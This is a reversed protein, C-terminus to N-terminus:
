EGLLHIPRYVGAFDFSKFVRFAIVNEQGPKLYKTVDTTWAHDYDYWFYDPGRYITDQYGNQEFVVPEGNIWIQMAKFIVSGFQLKVRECQAFAAPVNVSTRYFFAAVERQTQYKVDPCVSTDLDDLQAVSTAPLHYGLAVAHNRTDLCGKMMRPLRLSVKAAKVKADLDKYQNYIGGTMFQAKGKDDLRTPHMYNPYLQNLKDRIVFVDALRAVAQGYDGTERLIEEADCAADTSAQLDVMTQMHAKARATDAAAVARSLLERARARVAPTLILHNAWVENSYLDPIEAMRDELAQYYDMMAVAAAGFRAQAYDRMIDHYPQKVNWYLRQMLYNNLGCSGWDDYGQTTHGDLGLEHFWPYNKGIIAWRPCIMAMNWCYGMPEYDYLLTEAGAANALVMWDELWQKWARMTKSRPDRVHHLPSVGLPAFVLSMAPHVQELRPPTLNNAYVLVGFKRDPYKQRVREIVQRHFFWLQDTASFAGMAWDFDNSRLARSEPREDLVLGDEASLSAYQELPNRNFYDTFFDGYLQWAKPNAFNPTHFNLKGNALAYYDDPLTDVEKEVMKAVKKGSEDTVVERVSRVQRVQYAPQRAGWSLPNGLNHGQRPMPDGLARIFNGKNCLTWRPYDATHGYTCWFYREDHSPNETLNIDTRLTKTDPLLEGFPGPMVWRAGCSELLTYVSYLTGRARRGTLILTQGTARCLLGDRHLQDLEAGLGAQRALEAGLLIRPGTPMPTEAGVRVVPLKAGTIKEVLTQLEELAKEEEDGVSKLERQLATQTQRKIRDREKVDLDANHQDIWADLEGPRQQAYTDFETQAPLVITAAPQGDVVLDFAQTLAAIGLLLALAFTLTLPSFAAM